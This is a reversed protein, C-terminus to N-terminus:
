RATKRGGKSNRHLPISYLLLTVQLITPQQLALTCTFNATLPTIIFPLLM